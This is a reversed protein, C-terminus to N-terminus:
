KKGAKYALRALEATAAIRKAELFMLELKPIDSVEDGFFQFDAVLEEMEQKWERITM